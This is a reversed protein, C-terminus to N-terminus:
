EPRDMKEHRRKEVKAANAKPKQKMNNRIAKSAEILGEKNAALDTRNRVEDVSQPNTIELARPAPMRRAIIQEAQEKLYAWEGPTMARAIQLAEAEIPDAQTLKPSAITQQSVIPAPQIQNIWEPLPRDIEGRELGFVEEIQRAIIGGIGKTPNKGAFQSVQSQSKELRKAFESLGGDGGLEVSLRDIIGRAHRYRVETVDM